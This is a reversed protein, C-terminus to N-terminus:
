LDKTTNQAPGIVFRQNEIIGNAIFQHTCQAYVMLLKAHRDRILIM